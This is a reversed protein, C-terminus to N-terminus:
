THHGLYCLLAVTEDPHLKMSTLWTNYQRNTMDYKSIRVAVHLGCTRIKRSERQVQHNNIQVRHKRLFELFKASGTVKQLMSGGLGLSEWFFIGHTNRCMLSWHRQVKNGFGATLLVACCNRHHPLFTDLTFSKVTELDVFGLRMSKVRGSLLKSIDEYDLATSEDTQIESALSM